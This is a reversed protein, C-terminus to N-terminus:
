LINDAPMASVETIGDRYRGSQIMSIGAFYFSYFEGPALKALRRSVTVADDLRGNLWYTWAQNKLTLGSLPDIARLKDVLADAERARGISALFVPASRLYAVDERIAAARRYLALAERLRLQYARVM